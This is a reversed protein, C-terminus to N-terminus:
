PSTSVINLSIWIQRIRGVSWDKFGAPLFAFPDYQDIDIFGNKELATKLTEYDWVSYHINTPDEQGGSIAGRILSLPLQGTSYAYTLQEMDPMSLYLRGMPKLLSRFSQLIGDVERYKFHELGHCLYISNATGQGYRWKSLDKIDTVIDPHVEPRIDVNVFGPLHKDGCALHINM